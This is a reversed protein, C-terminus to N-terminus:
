RSKREGDSKVERAMQIIGSLEHEACLWTFKRSHLCPEYWFRWGDKEMREQLKKLQAWYKKTWNAAKSSCSVATIPNITRGFQELEKKIGGMWDLKSIKPPGIPGMDISPSRCNRFRFFSASRFEELIEIKTRRRSM